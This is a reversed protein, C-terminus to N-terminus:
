KGILKVEEGSPKVSRGKALDSMGYLCIGTEQAAGQDAEFLPSEKLTHQTCHPMHHALVCTSPAAAERHGLASTSLLSPLFM